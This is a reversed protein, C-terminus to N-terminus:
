VDYILIPDSPSVFRISALGGNYIVPTSYSSYYNVLAPPGREMAGMNTRFTQGRTSFSELVTPGLHNLSSFRM